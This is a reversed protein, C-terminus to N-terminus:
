HYTILHQGCLGNIADMYKACLTKIFVITLDSNDDKKKQQLFKCFCNLQLLLDQGISHKSSEFLDKSAKLDFFEQIIVSFEKEM